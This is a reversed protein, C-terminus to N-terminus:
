GLPPARTLGVLQFGEAPVPTFPARCLPRGPPLHALVPPAAGDLALVPTLTPARDLAALVGALPITKLAPLAAQDGQPGIQTSYGPQPRRAPAPVAAWGTAFVAVLLFLGVHILKARVIL